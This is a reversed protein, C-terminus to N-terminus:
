MQVVAFKIISMRDSPQLNQVTTKFSAIFGEV